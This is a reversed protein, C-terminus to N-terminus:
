LITLLDSWFITSASLISSRESERNSGFGRRKTFHRPGHSHEKWMDDHHQLCSQSFYINVVSVNASAHLWLIYQNNTIVSHKTYCLCETPEKVQRLFTMYDDCYWQKVKYKFKSSKLEDRDHAFYQNIHSCLCDIM